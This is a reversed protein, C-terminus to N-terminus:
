RRRKRRRFITYLMNRFDDFLAVIYTQGATNLLSKSKRIEKKTLLQNEQIMKLARKSADFELPIIIIKVIAHLLFLTASTICLTLGIDPTPWKITYFLLGFVLLPVILKNTFRTLKGLFMNSRYLFTGEKHQTAHGLEHCVIAVSAISPHNCVKGSMLLTREKPFYADCLDEDDQALSINLNKQNIIINAVEVGNLGRENAIKTYKNYKERIRTRSSFLLILLLLIFGGIYLYLM